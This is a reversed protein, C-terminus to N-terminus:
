FDEGAGCNKLAAGEKGDKLLTGVKEWMGKTVTHELEVPNGRGGHRHGHIEKGRGKERIDGSSSPLNKVVLVM